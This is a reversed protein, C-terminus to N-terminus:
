VVVDEGILPLGDGRKLFLHFSSKTKNEDGPYRFDFHGSISLLRGNPDELYSSSDVKIDFLEAEEGLLGLLDELSRNTLNMQLEIANNM